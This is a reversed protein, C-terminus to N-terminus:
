PCRELLYLYGLSVPPNQSIAVKEDNFLYWKEDRKIHAVYHGSHPSTGMHSVIARLRYKGSGNRIGKAAKPTAATSNERVPTDEKVPHDPLTDANMFLWEAAANIDGGVQKLAHEAKHEPFGLQVLEQALPNKTEEGRKEIDASTPAGSRSGKLDPHAENFDADDMHTMVWEVAADISANKTLYVAKRAVNMNFGMNLIGDVYNQNVRPGVDANVDEPLLNENPQPGKGLYPTLDIQEDLLVDVDLKKIAGELTYTFRKMQLVLYDPFTKLTTRTIANGVRENVPSQFGEIIEDGFTAELCKDLAIVKRKEPGSGTLEAAHEFPITVPQVVDERESYRVYGSSEDLLRTEVKFRFADVPNLPGPVNSDVKEFFHRLYEEADQQGATSFERHGRGVVKRFQTPKFGCEKREAESYQGSHLAACVKATQANFSELVEKPPIERLFKEANEAYVKVFDPVLYLMQLVSNIYCSSGINIIGSFGPGFISELSVGDETCRSWEWKQNLDLEMELTSKETKEMKNLDLGFHSLHQALKPDKCADDMKYDYVDANGNSITGLKVVIPHKTREYHIKAHGNGPLTVTEAGQQVVQPRGCMIAGDTLNLWLNEKLGCEPEDCMWGTYDLKKGNDLQILTRANESDFIQEGDWESVGAELREQVSASTHYVISRSSNYIDEPLDIESIPIKRAINPYQVFSYEETECTTDLKISLKQIKDKPEEPESSHILKKYHVFGCNKEYEVIWEAHKPCVCLFSKTSILVGNGDCYPTDYCYLCEDKYVKLNPTAINTEIGVSYTSSVPEQPPPTTDMPIATDAESM